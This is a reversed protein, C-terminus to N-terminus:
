RAGARGARAGRREARGAVHDAWEPSRGERWGERVAIVCWAGALWLGGLSRAALWGAGVLVAALVGALVAGPAAQRAQATIRRTVSTL